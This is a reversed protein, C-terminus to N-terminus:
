IPWWWGPGTADIGCVTTGDDHGYHATDTISVVVNDREVDAEAVGCRKCRRGVYPRPIEDATM